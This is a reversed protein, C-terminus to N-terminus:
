HLWIYSSPGLPEFGRGAGIPSSLKTTAKKLLIDLQKITNSYFSTKKVKIYLIIEVYYM